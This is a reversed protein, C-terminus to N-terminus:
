EDNPNKKLQHGVFKNTPSDTQDPHSSHILIMLRQDILFPSNTLGALDCAIKTDFESESNGSGKNNETFIASSHFSTTV